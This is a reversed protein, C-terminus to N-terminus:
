LPESPWEKSNQRIEAAIQDLVEDNGAKMIKEIMPRLEPDRYAELVEREFETLDDINMRQQEKGKNYM